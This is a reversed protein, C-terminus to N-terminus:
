KSKKKCFFSVGLFFLLLGTLVFLVGVPKHFVDLDVVFGSARRILYKNQYTGYGIKIFLCGLIISMMNSFFNEM